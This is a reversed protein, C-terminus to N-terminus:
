KKQRLKSQDDGVSRNRSKESKGTVDMDGPLSLVVKLWFPTEPRRLNLLMIAAESIHTLIGLSGVIGTIGQANLAARV